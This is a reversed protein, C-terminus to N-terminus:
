DAKTKIGPNKQSSQTSLFLKGLERTQEGMIKEGEVDKSRMMKTKM